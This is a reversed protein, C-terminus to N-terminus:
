GLAREEFHHKRHCNACLVDCKAIEKLIKEKSWKRNDVDGIAIEKEDPNRHHFDLCSPHSEGCKCSVTPLIEERLWRRIEWRQQRQKDAMRQKNKQFWEKQNRKQKDQDKM